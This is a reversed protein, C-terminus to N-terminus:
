PNQERLEAVHKDLEPWPASQPSTSRLYAALDAVQQDTLVDAFPPMYPTNDPQAPWALGERITM